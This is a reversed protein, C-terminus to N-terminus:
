SVQGFYSMSYLSYNAIMNGTKIFTDSMCRDWKKGLVDESRVKDAM